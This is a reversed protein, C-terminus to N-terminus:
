RQIQSDPICIRVASHSPREPLPTSPDTFTSQAHYVRRQSSEVGLHRGAVAGGKVTDGSCRSAATPHRSEDIGLHPAITPREVMLNHTREFARRQPLIARPRLLSGIGSAGARLHEPDTISVHKQTSAHHENHCAPMPRVQLVKPVSAESAM